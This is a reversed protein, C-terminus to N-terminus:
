FCNVSDNIPDNFNTVENWDFELQENEKKYEEKYKEEAEYREQADLFEPTDIKDFDDFLYKSM